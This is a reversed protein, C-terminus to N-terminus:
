FSCSWGSCVIRQTAVCAFDGWLCGTDMGYETKCDFHVALWSRTIRVVTGEALSRNTSVSYAYYACGDALKKGEEKTEWVKREVNRGMLERYVNLATALKDMEWYAVANLKEAENLYINKEIYRISHILEDAEMTVVSHFPDTVSLTYRNNGEETLTVKVLDLNIPAHGVIAAVGHLQYTLSNATKAIRDMEELGTKRAFESIATIRQSTDVVPINNQIQTAIPPSDNKKCQIL